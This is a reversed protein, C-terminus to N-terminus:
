VCYDRRCQKWMESKSFDNMEWEKKNIKGKKRETKRGKGM